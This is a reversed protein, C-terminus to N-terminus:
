QCRLILLAAIVHEILIDTSTKSRWDAGDSRKPRCIFRLIWDDMKPKEDAVLPDRLVRFRSRPSGWERLNMNSMREIVM